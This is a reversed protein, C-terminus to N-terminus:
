EHHKSGGYHYTRLLHLLQLLLDGLAVGLGHALQCCVILRAVAQRHVRRLGELEIALGISCAVLIGLAVERAQREVIGGEPVVARLAVAQGLGRGVGARGVAGVAEGDAILVAYTHLFVQFTELFQVLLGDGHAIFIGQGELPSQEEEAARGIRVIHLLSELAQLLHLTAGAVAGFVAQHGVIIM